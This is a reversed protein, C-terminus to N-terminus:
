AVIESGFVQFTLNATSVQSVTIVDTSALTIGFTIGTTTNAPVTADYSLYQNTALPAAAKRLAIRYTASASGRNCVSLM